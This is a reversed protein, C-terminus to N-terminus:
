RSITLSRPQPAAPLGPATREPPLEPGALAPGACGAHRGRERRGDVGNKPLGRGDQQSASRSTFGFQILVFYIAPEWM